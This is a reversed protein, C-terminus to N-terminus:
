CAVWGSLGAGPVYSLPVYSLPVYSL